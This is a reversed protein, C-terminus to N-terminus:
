GRTTTVDLVAEVGIACAIVQTIATLQATTVPPPLFEHRLTDSERWPRRAPALFLHDGGAALHTAYIVCHDPLAQKPLRGDPRLMPIGQVSWGRWLILRVPAVRHDREATVTYRPNLKADPPLAPRYTPQAGPTVEHYAYRMDFDAEGPRVGRRRIVHKDRLQGLLATVYSTSIGLEVAIESPRLNRAVCQFVSWEADTLAPQM